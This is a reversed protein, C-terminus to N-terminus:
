ISLRRWRRRWQLQGLSNCSLMEEGSSRSVGLGAPDRTAWLRVLAIAFALQSMGALAPVWHRVLLWFTGISALLTWIRGACVPAVM